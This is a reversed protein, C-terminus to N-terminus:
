HVWKNDNIGDDNNSLIKSIQIAGINCASLFFCM